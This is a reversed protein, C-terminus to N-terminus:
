RLSGDRNKLIDRDCNHNHDLAAIINRGKYVPPSYSHRKSSYKLILNQFNELVATSRHLFFINTLMYYGPVHTIMSSVSIMNEYPFKLCVQLESLIPGKEATEQRECHGEFSWPSPIRGRVVGERAGRHTTWTFM